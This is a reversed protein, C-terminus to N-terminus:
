PSLWAGRVAETGSAVLEPITWRHAGWQAYERLDDCVFRRSVSVMWCRQRGWKERNQFWVKPTLRYVQGLVQAAHDALPRDVDPGCAIGMASTGKWRGELVTRVCGDGAILGMLWSKDVTLDPFLVPGPTVLAPTPTSPKRPKSM